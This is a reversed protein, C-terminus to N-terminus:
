LCLQALRHGRYSSFFFLSYFYFPECLGVSAWAAGALPHPCYPPATVQFAGLGRVSRLMKLTTGSVQCAILTFLRDTLAPFGGSYQVFWMHSNAQRVLPISSRPIILIGRLVRTDHEPNKRVVITAATRKHVTSHVTGSCALRM